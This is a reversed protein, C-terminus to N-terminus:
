WYTKSYQFIIQLCLKLGWLVGSHFSVPLIIDKVSNEEM